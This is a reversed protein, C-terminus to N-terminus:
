ECLIVGDKLGLQFNEGIPMGTVEEIWYRLEEEKQLDYKQAIQSLFFIVLADTYLYCVRCNIPVEICLQLIHTLKGESLKPPSKRYVKSPPAPQSLTCKANEYPTRWNQSKSLWLYVQLWSKLCLSTKLMSGGSKHNRPLMIPQRIKDNTKFSLPPFHM